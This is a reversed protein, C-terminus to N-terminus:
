MVPTENEHAEGTHVNRDSGKGSASTRGAQRGRGRGRRPEDAEASGEARITSDENSRNHGKRGRGKGRSAGDSGLEESEPKESDQGGNRGGRGRGSGKTAGKGRARTGNGRSNWAGTNGWGADVGWWQSDEWSASAWWAEDWAEDTWSASAWWTDSAAEQPNSASKLAGQSGSNQERGQSGSNKERGSTASDAEKHATDNVDANQRKPAAKSRSSTAGEENSTKQGKASPRPGEARDGTKQAQQAGKNSAVSKVAAPAPLGQVSSASRSNPPPLGKKVEPEKPRNKEEEAKRRRDELQQQKEEQRRQRERVDEAAGKLKDRLRSHLLFDEVDEVMDAEVEDDVVVIDDQSKKGKKKKKKSTDSQVPEKVVPTPKENDRYDWAGQEFERVRERHRREVREPHSREWAREVEAFFARHESIQADQKEQSTWEHWRKYGCYVLTVFIALSSAVGPSDLYSGVLRLLWLVLGLGSISYFLMKVANETDTPKSRGM